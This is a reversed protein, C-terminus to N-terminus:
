ITESTKELEIKISSLDFLLCKPKSSLLTSLIISSTTPITILLYRLSIDCIASTHSTFTATIEEDQANLDQQRSSVITIPCKLLPVQPPEITIHCPYHIATLANSFFEDSAKNAWIYHMFSNHLALVCDRKYNHLKTIRNMVHMNKRSINAQMEIDDQKSFGM